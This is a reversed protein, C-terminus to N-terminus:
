ATPTEIQRIHRGGLGQVSNEPLVAGLKPVGVEETCECENSTAPRSAGNVM